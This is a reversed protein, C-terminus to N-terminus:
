LMKMGKSSSEAGWIKTDFHFSDLLVCIDIDVDEQTVHQKLQMRAHAKSIWIMSEIHRVVIPVGQGHQM